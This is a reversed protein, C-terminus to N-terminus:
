AQMINSPYESKLTDLLPSNIYHYDATLIKDMLRVTQAINTKGSIANAKPIVETINSTTISMYAICVM